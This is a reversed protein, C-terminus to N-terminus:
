FLKSFDHEAAALAEPKGIDHWHYAEDPVYGYIPSDSCSDIYFDMISFKSIRAKVDSIKESYAKLLPLIRPSLIHVGGFAFKQLEAVDALGDPRVAGTEINTWGRMRMSTADFLIYRKTARDKVLLTAMADSATHRSQMALINFDTLIDANHVLIDESGDLLPIAAVVGGGTDLLRDTEDSIHINVGFDDNSKLYDVIQDAFHHVNVVFDNIGCAKLKEIVLGLIPRGCVEALAKPHSDTFPKLRTGLGAAFIMAKM